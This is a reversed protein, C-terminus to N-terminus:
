CFLLSDGNKLQYESIYREARLIVGKNVSCLIEDSSSIYAGESYEEIAKGLLFCVDRVKIQPMVVIDFHMGLAPVNIDLIIKNM